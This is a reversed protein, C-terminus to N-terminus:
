KWDPIASKLKALTCDEGDALHRNEELTALIAERLKACEAKWEDVNERAINLMAEYSVAEARAEDREAIVYTKEGLLQAADMSAKGWEELAEDRERELRQAVSIHVVKENSDFSAPYRWAVGTEPTDTNM